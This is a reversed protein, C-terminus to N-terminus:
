RGHEVLVGNKGRNDHSFNKPHKYVSLFLPGILRTRHVPFETFVGEDEGGTM